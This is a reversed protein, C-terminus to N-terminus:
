EVWVWNGENDIGKFVTISCMEKGEPTRVDLNEDVTELLDILDKVTM